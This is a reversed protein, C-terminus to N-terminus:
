TSTNFSSSLTWRFPLLLFGFFCLWKFSVVFNDVFHEDDIRTTVFCRIATVWLYSKFIKEPVNLNTIAIPELGVGEVYYKGAFNKCKLLMANSLTWKERNIQNLIKCSLKKRGGKNAYSNETWHDNSYSCHFTENSTDISLYNINRWM